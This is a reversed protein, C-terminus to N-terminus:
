YRGYGGSSSCQEVAGTRDVAACTCNKYITISARRLFRRENITQEIDDMLSSLSTMNSAIVFVRTTYQDPVHDFLSEFEVALFGGSGHHGRVNQYKDGSLTWLAIVSVCDGMQGTIMKDHDRPLDQATPNGQTLTTTKPSNRDYTKIPTTCSVDFVGINRTFTAVEGKSAKPAKKVLPSSASSM